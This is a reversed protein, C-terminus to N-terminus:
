SKRKLKFEKDSILVIEFTHKTFHDDFVTLTKKDKELAWTGTFSKDSTSAADKCGAQRYFEVKSEEKTQDFTWRSYGCNKEICGNTVSGDDKVLSVTDLKILTEIKTCTVWKGVIKKPNAQGLCFNAALLLTIVFLKKM